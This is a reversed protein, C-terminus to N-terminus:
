AQPLCVPACAPPLPAVPVPLVSSNLPHKYRVCVCGYACKVRLQGSSFCVDANCQSHHLAHRSHQLQQLYSTWSLQMDTSYPCIQATLPPEGTSTADDYWSCPRWCRQCPGGLGACVCVCLLGVCIDALGAAVRLGVSEIGQLVTQSATSCTGKIRMQERSVAPAQGPAAVPM